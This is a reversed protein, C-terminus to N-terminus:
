FYIGQFDVEELEKNLDGLEQMINQASQSNDWFDAKASKTELKSLQNKKDGIDLSIYFASFHEDLETIQKKIDSMHLM